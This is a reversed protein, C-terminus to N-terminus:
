QGDTLLLPTIPPTIPTLEKKLPPTIPTAVVWPLSMTWMISARPLSRFMKLRTAM